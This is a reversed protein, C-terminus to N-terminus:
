GFEVMTALNDAFAKRFTGGHPTATAAVQAVARRPEVVPGLRLAPQRWGQLMTDIGHHGPNAPTASQCRDCSNGRFKDPKVQLEQFVRLDKADTVLLSRQGSILQTFEQQVLPVPCAGVAANSSNRELDLVDM